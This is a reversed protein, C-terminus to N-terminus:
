GGNQIPNFIIPFYNDHTPAAGTANGQHRSAFKNTKDLRGM